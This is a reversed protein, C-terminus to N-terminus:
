KDFRSVSCSASTRQLSASQYIADLVHACRCCCSAFSPLGSKSCSASVHMFCNHRVISEDYVRALAIIEVYALIGSATSTTGRKPGAALAARALSRSNSFAFCFFIEADAAVFSHALSGQGKSRRIYMDIILEASRNSFIHCHRQRVITQLSEAQLSVGWGRALAATAFFSDSADAAAAALRSSPRAELAGAAFTV